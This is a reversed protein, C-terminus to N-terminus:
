APTLFTAASWVAVGLALIRKGGFRDAMWGGALQPWLYGWFFASLVLGQAAVDYHKERALPIIAVSISVRDVCCLVNALSVLVIGTYRRTWGREREPVVGIRSPEAM